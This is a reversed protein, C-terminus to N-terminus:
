LQIATPAASRRIRRLTRTAADIAESARHDPLCSRVLSVSSFCHGDGGDVATVDAIQAVVAALAIGGSILGVATNAQRGQDFWLGDGPVAAVADRTLVDAIVAPVLPRAGVQPVGLLGTEVRLM